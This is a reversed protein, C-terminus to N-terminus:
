AIVKKLYISLNPICIPGVNRPYHLKKHCMYAAGLWFSNLKLPFSCIVYKFNRMGIKRLIWHMCMSYMVLFICRSMFNSSPLYIYLDILEYLNVNHPMEM